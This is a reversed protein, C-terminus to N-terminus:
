FNPRELLRPRSFHGPRCGSEFPPVRGRTSNVLVRGAGGHLGLGFSSRSEPRAPERGKRTPPSASNAAPSATFPRRTTAFVVFSRPPPSPHPGPTPHAPGCPISRHSIYSKGVSNCTPQHAPLPLAVDTVPWLGGVVSDSLFHDTPNTRPVTIIVERQKSGPLKRTLWGIQSETSIGCACTARGSWLASDLNRHTYDSWVQRARWAPGPGTAPPPQSPNQTLQHFLLSGSRQAEVLDNQRRAQITPRRM